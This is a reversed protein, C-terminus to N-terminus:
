VNNKVKNNFYDIWNDRDYNTQAHCSRCLAILNNENCNKKNYDIHHIDLKYGLSEETYNCEVCKRGYKERIKEKLSTSFEQPYIEFSRGGLWAHSNSGLKGKWHRANNISMLKKTHETHHKNFMPQQEKNLEKNWAVQCGKKNKNWVQIKGEKFLRKRTETTKNIWYANRGKLKSSIKQGRVKNMSIKRGRESSKYNPHSIIKEIEEPTHRWKGDIKIM